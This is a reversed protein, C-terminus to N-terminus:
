SAGLGKGEPLKEMSCTILFQLCSHGLFWAISSTCACSNFNSEGEVQHDSAHPQEATQPDGVDGEVTHSTFLSFFFFLLPSFLFPLSFFPFFFPSLHFSPSSLPPHPFFPSLFSSLPFSSFPLPTTMWVHVDTDQIFCQLFYQLRIEFEQHTPLSNLWIKLQDTLNVVLQNNVFDYLLNIFWHTHDSLQMHQVAWQAWCRPILPWM